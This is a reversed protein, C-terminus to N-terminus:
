NLIFDAAVPQHQALAWKTGYILHLKKESKTKTKNTELRGANM